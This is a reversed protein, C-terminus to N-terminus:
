TPRGRRATRPPHRGAGAAPGGALGALGEPGRPDGHRPAILGFSALIITTAPESMEDERDARDPRRQRGFTKSRAPSAATRARRTPRSRRCGSSTRACGSACITAPPSGRRPARPRLRGAQRGSRRRRLARLDLLLQHDLRAPRRRDPRDDCRCRDRPRHRRLRRAIQWEGPGGRVDPWAFNM